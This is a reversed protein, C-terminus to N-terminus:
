RGIGRILTYRWQEDAREIAMASFPVYAEVRKSGGAFLRVNIRQESMESTECHREDGEGLCDLLEIRVEIAALQLRESLNDVTVAFRYYSGHSPQLQPKTLVIEDPNFVNFRIDDDYNRLYLVILVIVLLAFTVIIPWAHRKFNIVTLALLVLVVVGIVVGFLWYM